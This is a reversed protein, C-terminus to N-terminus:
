SNIIAILFFVSSIVPLLYNFRTKKSHSFGIWDPHKEEVIVAIIHIIFFIAPTIFIVFFKSSFGDALSLAEVDKSSGGMTIGSWIHPKRTEPHGRRSCGIVANMSDLRDGQKMSKVLKLGGAPSEGFALEIM